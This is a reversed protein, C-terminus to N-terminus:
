LLDVFNVCVFLHLTLSTSLNKQYTTKRAVAFILYSLIFGSSQFYLQKYAAEM